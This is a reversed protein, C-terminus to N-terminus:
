FPRSRSTDLRDEFNKDRNRDRFNDRGAESDAKLVENVHRDLAAGLLCRNKEAVVMRSLQQAACM